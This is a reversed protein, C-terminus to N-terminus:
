RPPSSVSVSVHRTEPLIFKKVEVTVAPVGFEERVLAAIDRALTEILRWETGQGLGKLRQVVAFYDTTSALDDSSAAAQLDRFMEVTILLRQPSSREADPVGVRYFVELDAITIKDM